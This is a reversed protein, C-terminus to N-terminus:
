SSATCFFVAGRLRKGEVMYHMDAYDEEALDIWIQTEKKM